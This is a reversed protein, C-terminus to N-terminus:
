VEQLVLFYLFLRTASSPLRLTGDESPGQSEPDVYGVSSDGCSADSQGRSSGASITELDDQLKQHHPRKTGRSMGIEQEDEQCAIKGGETRLASKCKWKLADDKSDVRVEFIISCM